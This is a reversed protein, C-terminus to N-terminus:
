RLHFDASLTQGGVFNISARYCEDPTRPTKWNQVFQEAADYRLETAGTTTAEVPEGAESSACDLGAVRFDSVIAPDSLFGGGPTPVQWKLPVTRGGKMTNVATPDVPALLGGSLGFAVTVDFRETTTNGADDTATCTVTIVGPPLVSGPAPDCSVTPNQDTDDTAVPTDYDVTAGDASTATVTRDSLGPLVPPTTDPPTYTIIVKGAGAESAEGFSANTSDPHIHGSGGGGGARVYGGGGGYYGGGGGGGNDAGAGGRGLAGDQGAGTPPGGGTGGATQTGGGGVAGPDVQSVGDAGTEGGGDGGDDGGAGGGGGAVIIRDGFEGPQTRVDSAGGGGAGGQNTNGGGGNFGGVDGGLGAGNDGRGGVFVLLTEYAGIPITATAFGGLGGSAHDTNGGQAGYVDFTAETVGDPVTWEYEGHEDYTCVVKEGSEACEEPLQAQAAAPAATALLAAPLALASAAAGSRLWTSTSM